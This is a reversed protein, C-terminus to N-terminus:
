QAGGKKRTKRVKDDDNDATAIGFREMASRTAQFVQGYAQGLGRELDSWSEHGAQMLARARRNADDRMAQLDAMTQEFDRRADDQFESADRRAREFEAALRHQYGRIKKEYYDKPKM